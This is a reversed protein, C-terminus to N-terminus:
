LFYPDTVKRIDNTFMAVVEDVGSTINSNNDIKYVMNELMENVEVSSLAEVCDNVLQHNWIM